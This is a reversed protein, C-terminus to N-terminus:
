LEKYQGGNINVVVKLHSAHNKTGKCVQKAVTFLFVIVDLNYLIM